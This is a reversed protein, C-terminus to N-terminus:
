RYTAIITNNMYSHREFFKVGDNYLDLEEGDIELGGFNYTLRCDFHPFGKILEKAEEKSTAFVGIFKIDWGTEGDLPNSTYCEFNYQKMTETTTM